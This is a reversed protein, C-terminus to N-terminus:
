MICYQETVNSNGFYIYRLFHGLIVIRTSILCQYLVVSKNNNYQYTPARTAPRPNEPEQDSYTNAGASSQKGMGSLMLKSSAAASGM